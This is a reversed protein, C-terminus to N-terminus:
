IFKSINPNGYCHLCCWAGPNKNLEYVELNANRSSKEINLGSMFSNLFAPLWIPPISIHLAWFPAIITKVGMKLLSRVFSNIQSRLISQESSGSHCVFLVLVDVKNIIKFINTIAKKSFTFLSPFDSINQNGHAILIAINSDIPNEPIPFDIVQIEYEEITKELKSFLLNLTLDGESLPVWMTLSPNVPLLFEGKNQELMSISITDVLPNTQLILNNNDSKLLNHPMDCLRMDRMLCISKGMSLDINAFNLSNSIVKLDDIQSAETYPYYQGGIIESENFRLLHINHEVWNQHEALNYKKLKEIKNFQSNEFTLKFVYKDSSALWVFLYEPFREIIKRVERLYNQYFEIEKAESKNFNIESLLGEPLKEKFTLSFDTKLIMALLFSEPDNDHYSKEILRNALVLSHRVEGAFDLRDRTDLHAILTNIFYEKIQESEGITYAKLKDVVEFGLISEFLKQYELLISCDIKGKSCYQLNYILSLWPTASLKGKRIIPERYENLFNYVKVVLNQDNMQLLLNFNSCTLSELQAERLFPLKLIEDYILIAYEAFGFNRFFRHINILLDEYFEKSVTVQKLSLVCSLLYLSAENGIYQSNFVKFQLYFGWYLLDDEKSLYLAEEALDRALQYKQSQTFKDIVLGLAFYFYESKNLERSLQKIIAAYFYVITVDNKQPTMITVVEQIIEVSQLLLSLKDGEINEIHSDLLRFKETRELFNNFINKLESNAKTADYEYDDIFFSDGIAALPFDKIKKLFIVLMIGFFDLGYIGCMNLLSIRIDSTEENFDSSFESIIDELLEIIDKEAIEDQFLKIQHFLNEIKVIKESITM